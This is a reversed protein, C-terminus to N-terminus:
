QAQEGQTPQAEQTAGELHGKSDVPAVRHQATAYNRWLWIRALALALGVCVFIAANLLLADVSDLGYADMIANYVRWLLYALPGAFLLLWWDPGVREVFRWRRGWRVMAAVMLPGVVALLALTYDVAKTRELYEFFSDEM